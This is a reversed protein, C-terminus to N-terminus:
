AHYLAGVTADPLAPPAIFLGTTKMRIEFRRLGYKKGAEHLSTYQYSQVRGLEIPPLPPFSSLDILSLDLKSLDEPSGEIRWSLTITAGNVPSIVEIVWRQEESLGRFDRWLSCQYGNYGSEPNDCRWGDPTGDSNSDELTAGHPFHAQVPDDPELLSVTDTSNDYGGTARNRVGASLSNFVIGGPVASYPTSVTLMVTWEGQDALVDAHRCFFLFVLALILGWRRHNPYLCNM